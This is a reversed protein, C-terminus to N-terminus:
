RKVPGLYKDLWDLSERVYEKRPPVHGSDYIVHRKDKEPTGLLRFLPVQSSEVPFGSDYRGNLMLFPTKVRTVFNIPEAEPFARQFMLGGALVIAARFRDEVGLLVPAVFGGWSFGFYAIRTSDIDTRTKLYDLSRGLDKSWAVM